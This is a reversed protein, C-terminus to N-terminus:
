WKSVEEVKVEGGKEEVFLVSNKPMLKWEDKKFTTPESAVVVHGGKEEGARKGKGEEEEGGDPHGEFRRDIRVGATTSYYLSPPSETPHPRYRLCLLSSGNTIAINLASPEFPESSPLSHQLREITQLTQFLAAKLASMPYTASLPDPSTSTATLYTFFLAAQTPLQFLLLDSTLEPPVHSLHLPISSPPALVSPPLRVMAESDTTGQILKFVEDSVEDLMKRHISKFNGVSGNHQFLHRGSFFHIGTRRSWCDAEMTERETLPGLRGSILHTSSVLCLRIRTRRPSRVRRWGSIGLSSRRRRTRM